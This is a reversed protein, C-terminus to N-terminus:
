RLVVKVAKGAARVIYIGPAAAALTTTGAAPATAVCLGSASYLEVTGEDVGAVTVNLGETTVFIQEAEASEIGALGATVEVPDSLRSEGRKWVATVAYTYSEGEEVDTDVYNTSAVPTKTLRVGDRYVHYGVLTVDEHTYGVPSFTVDDVLVALKNFSRHVIAFYRTGAPLDFTFEVWDSAYPVEIGEGGEVTDFDGTDKGTTSYLIDLVEPAYSSQGARAFFSIRQASGNLEPSILWDESEVDRAGDFCAQFSALFQGGSRAYWAGDWVMAASPDFVQWAMPEGVHPYTLPGMWTAMIVTPRGDADVTTWDGFGETLFADYTDFTETVKVMPILEPDPETWTLTVGNEATAALSRPEPYDTTTVEVTLDDSENNDAFSDDAYDLTVSYIASPADAPTTTDDLTVTLNGFPAIRLGTLTEIPEGNKHLTVSYDGRAVESATFNRLKANVSVIANAAVRSPGSVSLIAIERDVKDFLNFNDVGVFYDAPSKAYGTLGFQIYKADKFESLPIEVPIWTQHRAPDIEIKRLVRMPQDEVAIEVYFDRTEATHILYFFLTPNETGALTVRPTRMRYGGDSERLTSLMLMYGDGDQSSGAAFGGVGYDWMSEFVEEDEIVSEGSWIGSANRSGEWSEFLPLELAPGVYTSYTQASSPTTSMSISATKVTIAILDQVARYEAPIDLEISTQQGISETGNITYSANVYKVTYSVDSPNVYGGNKGKLPAEWTAYVHGPRSADEWVRMNHVQGPIDPGVYASVTAPQGEGSSGIATFTYRHSGKEAKSRDVYNLTKGDAVGETLEALPEGDRSITLKTVNAKGAGGITTTPLTVDFSPGEATPTVVVAPAAPAESSAGVVKVEYIYLNSNTKGEAKIGFYYEGTEDPVFSAEPSVTGISPNVKTSPILEHNFTAADDPNTGVHVSFTEVTSHGDATLSFSYLNGAVLTFPGVCLYDDATVSGHSYVAAGRKTDVWWTIGDGNNDIAPYQNFLLESTFDDTHPLGFETGAYLQRTESSDGETTGAIPTVIYSYLTKFKSPVVDEVWLETTAEAVVTNDPKRVVRYTLPDLNGGNRADAKEWDVTITSGEAFANPLRYLYPTDCGVFLKTSKPQGAASGAKAVVDITTQGAAPIPAIASVHEGAQATGTAVTQEAVIIEWTLASSFASGDTADAPMDFSVEAKLETGVAEATLNEVARPTGAAVDAKQKFFIASFIDCTETGVSWYGLDAVYEVSGDNPDITVIFPDAESDNYHFYILGTEWDIEASEWGRYLSDFPDGQNCDGWEVYDPDTRSELQIDAVKTLAATNKNITYLVGDEGIGYLVGDKNAAIGRMPVDLPGVVKSPDFADDFDIWALVADSNFVDDSEKFMAGYIRRTEPDYTADFPLMNPSSFTYSGTAGAPEWTEADFTMYSVTSSSENYSVGFFYGDFYCGSMINAPLNNKVVTHDGDPHIEVVGELGSLPSYDNLYSSFVGYLQKDGAIGGKIRQPARVKKAASPDAQRRAMSAEKRAKVAERKQQLDAMTPEGAGVLAYSASAGIALAAALSLYFKKM